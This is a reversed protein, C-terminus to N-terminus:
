ILCIAFQIFPPMHSSSSISRFAIFCRLTTHNYIMPAQATICRSPRAILDTTDHYRWWVSVNEAKSARQAPFEGNVSSNKAWPGTVRLKWTEKTRRRFLHNLLCDHPQHNSVGDRGNRRWRLPLLLLPEYRQIISRQTKNIPHGVM